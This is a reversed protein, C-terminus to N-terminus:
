LSCFVGVHLKVLLFSGCFFCRNPVTLLITFNQFMGDVTDALLNSAYVHHINQHFSEEAITYDVLLMNCDFRSFEFDEPSSTKNRIILLM